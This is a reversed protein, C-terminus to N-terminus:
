QNGQIPVTTSANEIDHVDEAAWSTREDTPDM